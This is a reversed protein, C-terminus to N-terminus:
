LRGFNGAYCTNHFYLIRLYNTIKYLHTIYNILTHSYVRLALHRLHKHPSFLFNTNIYNYTM